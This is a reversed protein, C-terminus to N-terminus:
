RTSRARPNKRIELAESAVMLKFIFSVAALSTRNSSSHLRGHLWDTIAEDGGVREAARAYLEEVREPPTGWRIRRLYEHAELQRQHARRARDHSNRCDRCWSPACGQARSRRKFATLPLTQHCKPCTHSQDLNASMFTTGRPPRSSIPSRRVSFRRQLWGRYQTNGGSVHRLTGCASRILAVNSRCSRRAKARANSLTPSDGTSM